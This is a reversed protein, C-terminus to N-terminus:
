QYQQQIEGSQAGNFKDELAQQAHATGKTKTVFNIETNEDSFCSIHFSFDLAM